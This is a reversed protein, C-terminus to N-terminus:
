RPWTPTPGRCRRCSRRTPWPWARCAWCAWTPGSWPAARRRSRGDPLHRQPPPLQEGRGPGRGRLDDARWWADDPITLVGEKALSELLEATTAVIEAMNAADADEALHGVDCGRATRAEARVPGPQAAGDARGHVVGPGAPLDPRLAADALPLDRGGPAGRPRGAIRLAAPGRQGAPGRDAGPRDRGRGAPVLSPRGPQRRGRAPGLGPRGGAPGARGGARHRVAAAPRAVRLRGRVRHGPGRQDAGARGARHGRRGPLPLRRLGAARGRHRAPDAGRGPPRRARGRRLHGLPRRRPPQHDLGRLRARGPRQSRRGGSPRRGPVLRVGGRGAPRPRAPHGPDPRRGRPLRGDPFQQDAEIGRFGALVEAWSWGPVQWGDYCWPQGRLAAASNVTSGGGLGRGQPIPKGTRTDTYRYYHADPLAYDYLAWRPPPDGADPGAEIVTVSGREAWRLAAFLGAAGAGIVLTDTSTPM